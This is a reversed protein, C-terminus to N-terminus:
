ISTLLTITSGGFKRITEVHFGDPNSTTSEEFVILTGPLIWGKAVASGLAIEGLGKGYPPDLFVLDCPRGPSLKTAD